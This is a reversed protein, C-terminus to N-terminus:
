QAFEKKLWESLTADQKYKYPFNYIYNCGAITFGETDFMSGDEGIVTKFKGTPTFAITGDQVFSLIIPMGGLQKQIYQM